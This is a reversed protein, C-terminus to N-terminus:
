RAASGAQAARSLGYTALLLSIAAIISIVGGLTRDWTRRFILDVQHTGKELRLVMQGTDPEYGPQVRAGDVRVLWAPYNLLRLVISVDRQTKVTFHRHEASWAQYDATIDKAPVIEHTLSDEGEIRPTEPPIPADPDDTQPAGPLDWHSSGLPAYEDMGTFGHGIRIESAIHEVDHGNWWGDRVILTAATVIGAAAILIVLGFAWQKRFSAAAGAIFLALPVALVDLWRWPFQVFWLKPLVRWLFLSAPFMAFTSAIAAALLMWWLMRLNRFRRAFLIAAIVTAGIMGAAVRSVRTNFQVFGLENNRAFLFNHSPQLSTTLAGAIQVWRQEYAAPVLYFATLAFGALVALAGWLLPYLKRDAVSAVILILVVSYTAMVGAPANCLWVAAFAVALAPVYRSEHRAVHIAGWFLLPFLAAALLEAFDSRYYLMVLHYPDAAFLVAAAVAAPGSLWERAFTWMSIGAVVLALWVIAGEVMKWPLLSGFAAGLLWSVPPYFIFRPEGFGWNAWESWRPFIIGEHWQRAVEMWSSLHFEIDHGSPNGLFFFPSIGATAALVIFILATRSRVQQRLASTDPAPSPAEFDAARSEATRM